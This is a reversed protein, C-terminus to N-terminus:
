VTGCNEHAGELFITSHRYMYKYIHLRQLPQKRPLSRFYACHTYVPPVSVPGACIQNSSLTHYRATTSVAQSRPTNDVGFKNTCSVTDKDKPRRSMGHKGCTIFATYFRSSCFFGCRELLAAVRYVDKHSASSKRKISFNLCEAAKSGDPLM